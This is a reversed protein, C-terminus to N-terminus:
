TLVSLLEVESINKGWEKSREASLDKGKTALLTAIAAMGNRRPDHEALEQEIHTYQMEYWSSALPESGM